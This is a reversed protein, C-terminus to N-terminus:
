LTGEPTASSNPPSTPGLGWYRTEFLYGPVQLVLVDLRFLRKASLEHHDIDRNVLSIGLVDEKRRLVIRVHHTGSVEIGVLEFGVLELELLELDLIPRGAFDLGVLSM